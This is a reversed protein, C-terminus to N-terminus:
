REPHSGRARKGAAGSRDPAYPIGTPPCRNATFVRTRGAGAAGAARPQPHRVPRM